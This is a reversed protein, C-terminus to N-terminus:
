QCKRVQCAFTALAGCHRDSLDATSNNKSIDLQICNGTSNLNKPQNKAWAINEVLKNTSCSVFESGSKQVGSTWYKTTYKWNWGKFWTM